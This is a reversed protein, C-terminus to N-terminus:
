SMRCKTTTSGQPPTYLNCVTTVVTNLLEFHEDKYLQLPSDDLGVCIKGLGKSPYKCVYLLLIGVIVEATVDDECCQVGLHLTELCLCM